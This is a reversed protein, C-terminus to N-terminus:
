SALLFSHGDVRLWHFLLCQLGPESTSVNHSEFATYHVLVVPIPASKAKYSALPYPQAQSFRFTDM